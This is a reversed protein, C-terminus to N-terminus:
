PEFRISVGEDDFAFFGWGDFGCAATAIMGAHRLVDDMDLRHRKAYAVASGGRSYYEVLLGAVPNIVPGIM